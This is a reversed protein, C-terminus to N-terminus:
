DDTDSDMDETDDPVDDNPSNPLDDDDNSVDDDDIDDSDDSDPLNDEEIDDVDEPDEVDDVEDLIDELDDWFDDFDSDDDVPASPAPLAQNTVLEQQLYDILDTMSMAALKDYELTPYKAVLKRLLAAKGQTMSYQEALDDLDDDTHIQQSLVTSTHIMATMNDEVHDSVQLQLQDARKQNTCEVSVLVTDHSETLYGHKVMSGLIANLAVDLDTNKLNMDELVIEGDTNSAQASVVRDFHNIKLSVSPNVDLYVAADAHLNVAALSVFCIVICAALASVTKMLRNPSRRKSTTGDLYWENGKALRVPQEWLADAQNPAMQSTARRLHNDINENSFKSM